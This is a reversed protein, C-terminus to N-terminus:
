KFKRRLFRLIRSFLSPRSERFFRELSRRAYLNEEVSLQGLSVSSPLLEVDFRDSVGCNTGSGDHGINRVLSKKPFLTLGGERFVTAYWFIAWTDIVGRKNLSVQRWFNESGNFNFDRVEARSFSRLLEEPNKNFHSWASAWTAWGWSTTFKLFYADGVNTDGDSFIPYNYGAISMVRPENRFKSLADIMYPIFSTSVILDDELVIVAEYEQLVQTVGEIISRALGVNQHREVLHIREFGRITSIYSRVESVAQGDKAKPGDSFVYLVLSNVENSLLAEVTQKTHDLRNYVFLAVAVSNLM